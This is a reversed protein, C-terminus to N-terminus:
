QGFICKKFSPWFMRAHTSGGGDNPCHGFSFTKKWNIDERISNNADFNWHLCASWPRDAHEWVCSGNLNYKPLSWVKYKIMWTLFQPQFKSQIKFQLCSPRSEVMLKVQHVGLPGKDVPLRLHCDQFHNLAVQKWLAVQHTGIGLILDTLQGYLCSDLHTLSKVPVNTLAHLFSLKRFSTLIKGSKFLNHGCKRRYMKVCVYGCGDEGMGEKEIEIQWPPMETRLCAIWINRCKTQRSNSEAWQHIDSIPSM